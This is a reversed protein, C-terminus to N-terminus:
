HSARALPEGLERHRFTPLENATNNLKECLEQATVRYYTNLLIKLDKHGSVKALDLVSLVKAMRTLAEGRSDHFHLTVVSPVAIAARPKIKQTFLSSMSDASVEFNSSVQDLIERARPTLPVARSEGNKSRRVFVYEGFDDEPMLNAIEGQRMATELAFVFAAATRATRTLLLADSRYGAAHCIAEIEEASVRRDRPPNGAPKKIRSFPNQRLWGWENTAISCAHRLITLDRLVTEGSRQELSRDRWESAAKPTLNRLSVKAIEDKLLTEIRKSEWAGSTKTPSIKTQYRRLLDSFTKHETTVYPADELGIETRKAWQAAESKTRFTRSERLIKGDRMLRVDARYRNGDKGQITRISAMESERQKAYTKVRFIQRLNPAFKACIQRL